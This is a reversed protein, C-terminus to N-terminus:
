SSTMAAQEVRPIAAPLIKVMRFPLHLRQQNDAIWREQAAGLKDGASKVEVLEFEKNRRVLLDPWGAHRAWYREILYRLLEILRDPPMVDILQRAAEIHEPRHAWLYNRLHHSPGLWQDFLDLLERHQTALAEMHDNIPGARRAAYEPKGFHTPLRTWIVAGHRGADYAERDLFGCKRSRRDRPDQVVPWMYTAFLVHIPRNELLTASYGLRSFHRRAYEEVGCPESGDMILARGKSNTGYTARLPIVEIGYEDTIGRSDRRFSNQKPM